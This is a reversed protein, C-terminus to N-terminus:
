KYEGCNKCYRDYAVNKTNCKKCVWGNTGVGKEAYALSIDNTPAPKSFAVPMTKKQSSEKNNEVPVAATKERVCENPKELAKRIAGTDEILQGFGYMFFSGVWSAVCGGILVGFGLAITPTRYSDMSWLVIAFILSAIMGVVCVVVALTKIKGGINDFM